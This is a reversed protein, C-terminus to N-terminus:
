KKEMRYFYEEYEEFYESPGGMRKFVEANMINKDLVYLCSNGVSRIVSIHERKEVRGDIFTDCNMFYKDGKVEDMPPISLLLCIIEEVKM